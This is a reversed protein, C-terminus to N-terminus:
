GFAEKGDLIVSSTGPIGVPQPRKQVHLSDLRGVVDALAGQAGGHNPSFAGEAGL